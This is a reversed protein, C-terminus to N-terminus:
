EEINRGSNMGSKIERISNIGEDILHMRNYM